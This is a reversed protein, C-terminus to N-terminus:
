RVENGTITFRKGQRLIYVNGNELVKVPKSPSNSINELGTHTDEGLMLIFDKDKNANNITAYTFSSCLQNNFDAIYTKGAKTTMKFSGTYTGLYYGDSQIFPQYFGSFKLDLEVDTAFQYTPNQSDDPILLCNNDNDDSKLYVNNKVLSYQGSIADEKGSDITIWVQPYGDSTQDEGTFFILLWWPRDIDSFDSATILAAEMGIVNLMINGDEDEQNQIQKLEVQLEAPEETVSNDAGLGTVIIYYVGELLKYSWGQSTTSSNWAEGKAAASSTAAVAFLIRESSSYYENEATTYDEMYAHNDWYDKDNTMTVVLARESNLIDVKFKTTNPNTSFWSFAVKEANRIKVTLSQIQEASVMVAMIVACVLLSIKKM